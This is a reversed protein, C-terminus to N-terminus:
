RHWCEVRTAKVLECPAEGPGCVITYQWCRPPNPPHAAANAAFFAAVVGVLLLRKVM